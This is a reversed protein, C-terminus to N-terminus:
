VLTKTLKEKNPRDYPYSSLNLESRGLHKMLGEDTQRVKNSQICILKANIQPEGEM